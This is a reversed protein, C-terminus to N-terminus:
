RGPSVGAMVNSLQVRSSIGLKLYARSLHVEVTKVTVFLEQAIARNSLGPERDALVATCRPWTASRPLMRSRSMSVGSSSSAPGATVQAREHEDLACLLPEYWKGFLGFSFGREQERRRVTLTRLM